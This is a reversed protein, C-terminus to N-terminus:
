RRQHYCVATNVPLTRSACCSGISNTAGDTDDAFSIERRPAEQVPGADAVSDDFDMGFCRVLWLYRSKDGVDDLSEFPIAEDVSSAVPCVFAPM